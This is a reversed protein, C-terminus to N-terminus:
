EAQDIRLLVIGDRKETTVLFTRKREGRNNTQDLHVPANTKGKGTEYTERIARRISCGGCRDTNGCGGPKSSNVCEFVEGGLFGDIEEIEKESIKRAAANSKIVRFNRDLVFVPESIGELFTVM